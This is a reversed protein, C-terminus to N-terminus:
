QLANTAANFDYERHEVTQRAKADPVAETSSTLINSVAQTQEVSTREYMRLSEVTLHGTIESIVKEPVGAKILNTAGTARLSHNTKCGCIQGIQM